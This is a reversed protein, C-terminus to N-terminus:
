YKENCTALLESSFLLFYEILQEETIIMGDTGTKPLNTLTEQWYESLSKSGVGLNILGALQSSDTDTKSLIAAIETLKSGFMMHFTDVFPAVELWQTDHTKPLLASLATIGVITPPCHVDNQFVDNTHQSIAHGILEGLNWRDALIAGAEAHDWGMMERELRSLRAHGMISKQFMDTYESEWKEALIPIAMDQMLACIFAEDGDLKTYCKTVIRAFVARRLADQFLVKLSFPGCRPNPLMSFLGNWLVFNCITRVSVLTIAM